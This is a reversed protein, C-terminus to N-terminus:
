KFDSASITIERITKGKKNKFVYTLKLGYDNMAAKIAANDKFGEIIDRKHQSKSYNPLSAAIMNSIEYYYTVIRKDEDYEVNTIKIGNSIYRGTNENEVRVSEKMEANFEALEQEWPDAEQTDDTTELLTQSVENTEEAVNSSSNTNNRLLLITLIGIILILAGIIITYIIANDNKSQNKEIPERTSLPEITANSLPQNLDATMSLTKDSHSDESKIKQDEQEKILEDIQEDYPRKPNSGYKNIGKESDAFCLFLGFFPILTFWGSSGMDHARKIAEFVLFLLIVMEVFWLFWWLSDNGNYDAERQITNIISCSFSSIIIYLVYELRRIRGEWTLFSRFMGKSNNLYRLEYQKYDNNITGITEM